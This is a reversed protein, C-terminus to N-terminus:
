RELSRLRIMNYIYRDMGKYLYGPIKMSTSGSGDLIIADQASLGIQPLIAKISPINILAPSIILYAIRKSYNGDYVMFTRQIPGLYAIESGWDSQELGFGGIVERIQPYKSRVEEINKAYMTAGLYFNNWQYVVLTKRSQQNSPSGNYDYNKGTGQDEYSWSISDSREPPSTYNGNYFGGNIGSYSTQSIPKLIREPKINNLPTEIVKIQIQASGVIVTPETFKYMSVM